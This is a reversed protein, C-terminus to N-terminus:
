VKLACDLTQFNFFRYRGKLIIIVFHRFADNEILQEQNSEYGYLDEQVSQNRQSMVQLAVSDM